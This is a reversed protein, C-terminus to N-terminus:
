TLSGGIMPSSAESRSLFWNLRVLFDNYLTFRQRLSIDGQRQFYEDIDVWIREFTYVPYNQIHLWIDQLTRRFCPLVVDIYCLLYDGRESYIQSLDYLDRLLKSSLQIQRTVDAVENVLLIDIESQIRYLAAAINDARNAEAWCAPLEAM